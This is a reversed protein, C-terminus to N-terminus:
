FSLGMAIRYPESADTLSYYKNLTQKAIEVAARIAPHNKSTPLAANTFVTDIHDMAPIVIPLNPTGRSFHPTADKPAQLYESFQVTV